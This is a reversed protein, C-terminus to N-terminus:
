QLNATVKDHYLGAPPISDNPGYERLRRQYRPEGTM